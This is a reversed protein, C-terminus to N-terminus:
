KLLTMACPIAAIFLELFFRREGFKGAHLLLKMQGVVLFSCAMLAVIIFSM